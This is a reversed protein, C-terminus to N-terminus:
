MAANAFLMLRHSQGLSAACKLEATRGDVNYRLSSRCATCLGDGGFSVPRLDALPSVSQALSRPFAAGPWRWLKNGISALWRYRLADTGNRSCRGGGGYSIESRLDPSCGLFAAVVREEKRRRPALRLSRAGRRFAAQVPSVIGVGCSVESGSLQGMSSAIDQPSDHVSRSHSDFVQWSANTKRPQLTPLRVCWIRGTRPLVPSCGPLLVRPFDRETVSHPAVTVYARAARRRGCPTSPDSTARGRFSPLALGIFSLQM